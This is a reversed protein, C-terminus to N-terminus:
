FVVSDSTTDHYAGLFTTDDPIKLGRTALEARVRWDNAMHAFARANPGGRKGACAGCCYASEHPNNISSSGHGCVIFLRSFQETKTLGMDQPQWKPITRSTMGTEITIGLCQTRVVLAWRRTTWM